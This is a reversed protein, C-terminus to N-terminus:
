SEIIDSLQKCLAWGKETLLLDQTRRDGNRAVSYVLALGTGDGAKGHEALHSVIRSVTSQPFGLVRQVDASCKPQEAFCGMAIFHFVRYTTIDFDPHVSVVAESIQWLKRCPDSLHKLETM